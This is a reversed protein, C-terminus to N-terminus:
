SFSRGTKIYKATKNAWYRAWSRADDFNTPCLSKEVCVYHLGNGSDFYRHTSHGDTQRSGYSPANCIYIRVEGDPQKVLNFTFPKQIHRSRYWYRRSTSARPSARPTARPPAQPPQRQRQAPTTTSQGLLALVLAIAGGVLLIPGLDSM